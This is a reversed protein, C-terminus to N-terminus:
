ITQFYIIYFVVETKNIILFPFLVAMSISSFLLIAGDHNGKSIAKYLFYGLLSAVQSILALVGATNADLINLYSGIVFAVSIIGTSIGRLLNPIALTYFPKYLLMNIKKTESKGPASFEDTYSKTIAGSLILSATAFLFFLSM